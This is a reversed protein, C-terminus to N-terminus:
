SSTLSVILKMDMGNRVKNCDRISYKKNNKLCITNGKDLMHSMYDFEKGAPKLKQIGLARFYESLVLLHGLVPLYQYVDSQKWYHM